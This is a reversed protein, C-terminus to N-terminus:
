DAIFGISKVIYKNPLYAINSELQIICSENVKYGYNTVLKNEPTGLYTETRNLVSLEFNYVPRSSMNGFNKEKELPIQVIIYNEKENYYVLDAQFERKNLLQKEVENIIYNKKTLIINTKVNDSKEEPKYITVYDGVEIDSINTIESNQYNIVSVNSPIETSIYSSKDEKVNGYVIKNKTIEFVEGYTYEINTSLIDKNYTSDENSYYYPIIYVNDSQEDGSFIIKVSDELWEIKYNKNKLTAGDNAIETKFTISNVNKLFTFVNSGFYVEIKQSSFFMSTGVQYCKIHFNGDPSKEDFWETKSDKVFFIAGSYIQSIILFITEIVIVSILIIKKM